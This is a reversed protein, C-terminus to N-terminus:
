AKLPKQQKRNVDSSIEPLTVGTKNPSKETINFSDEACVPTSCQLSEKKQKLVTPTKADVPSGVRNLLRAADWAKEIELVTQKYNERQRM